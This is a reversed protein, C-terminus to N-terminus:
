ASESGDSKETTKGLTRPALFPGDFMEAADAFDFGHKRLNARNKAEDWEIQM